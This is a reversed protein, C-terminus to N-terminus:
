VFDDCVSMYFKFNYKEYNNINLSNKLKFKVM